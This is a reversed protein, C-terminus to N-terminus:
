PTRYCINYSLFNNVGPAVTQNLKLGNHFRLAIGDMDILKLNQASNLIDRWQVGALVTGDGDEFDMVYNANAAGQMQSFLHLSQVTGDQGAPVIQTAGVGTAINNGTAIQQELVVPVAVTPPIYNLLTLNTTHSPLGKPCSVYFRTANTFVPVVTQPAYAPVQYTQGSDPFILLVDSGCQSNDYACATLQSLSLQEIAGLNVEVCRQPGSQADSWTIQLPVMRRGEAPEHYLNSNMSILKDGRYPVSNPVTIAPM